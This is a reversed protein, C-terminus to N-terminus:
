AAIAGFTKFTGPTGATTCVWGINGAAAPATNYVRDGVAWTGTAPAATGTIVNKGNEQWHLRSDNLRKLVPFQPATGGIIENATTLGAHSSNLVEVTASTLGDSIVLAREPASVTNSHQAFGNVALFTGDGVKFVGLRDAGGNANSPMTSFCVTMADILARSGSGYVDVFAGAWTTGLTVREFHLGALKANFVDNFLLVTSNSKVGEINFQSFVIEDWVGFECSREVTSAVGGPENVSYVNNFVCGTSRRNYSVLNWARLSYEEVWIDSFTCSFTYNGTSDSANLSYDAQKTHFARAAKSVHMLRYSCLYPKYFEVANAGTNAAAQASSYTLKLNSVDQFQRGLLLIPTNATTQRITTALAGAGYLVLGDARLDWATSRNYTGPPIYLPMHQAIAAASAADLAATDDATGNGTAGFDKANLVLNNAQAIHGDAGLTALGNPQGKATLGM